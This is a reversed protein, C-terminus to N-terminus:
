QKPCPTQALGLQLLRCISASRQGDKTEFGIEVRDGLQGQLPSAVYTGDALSRVIVGEGASANYVSVKSEAGTVSGRTEWMMTTGGMGDDVAVPSFSPDAPPPLPIFPTSCAPLGLVLAGGAGLATVAVLLWRRLNM